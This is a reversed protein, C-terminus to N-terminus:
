MNENVSINEKPKDDEEKAVLKKMMEADPNKLKKILKNPVYPFSAHPPPAASGFGLRARTLGIAQRVGEHSLGIDISHSSDLLRILHATTRKPFTPAAITEILANHVQQWSMCWLPAYETAITRLAYRKQKGMLEDGSSHLRVM